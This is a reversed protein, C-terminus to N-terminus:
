VKESEVEPHIHAIATFHVLVFPPAVKKARGTVTARTIKLYGEGDSFTSFLGAIIPGGKEQIVVRQDLLSRLMAFRVSQNQPESKPAILPEAPNENKFLRDVDEGKIRNTEM